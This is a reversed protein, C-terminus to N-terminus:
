IELVNVGPSSRHERKKLRHLTKVIRLLLIEMFNKFFYPIYFGVSYNKPQIIVSKAYSQISNRFCLVDYLVQHMQSLSAINKFFMLM